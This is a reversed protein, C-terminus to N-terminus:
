SGCALVAGAQLPLSWDFVVGYLARPTDRMQAYLGPAADVPLRHSVIPELSIRGAQLHDILAALDELGFHCSVEISAETTHLMAWPFRAEGRVAIAAIAGGHALLRRVFVDHFLREYGSGDFIVDFPGAAAIQDWADDAGADVVRDMGCRRAAQLRAEVLDSATVVAGAAKACMAGCIGVPGLGVVWVRQGARVRTRRVARHAVGAVGLLACADLPLGDPLRITLSAALDSGIMHWGRHGVYQGHFVVQGAQVSDVEEGVAAVRCVHQYGHRSPFGGGYGYDAMLAHRETGNTVGSYLTELLVQGPGLPPPPGIDVLAAQGLAAFEIALHRM